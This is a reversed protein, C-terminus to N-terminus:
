KRRKEIIEDGKKKLKRIKSELIRNEQILDGNVEYPEGYMIVLTKKFM